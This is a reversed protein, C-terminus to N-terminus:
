QSSQLAAFRLPQDNPGSLTVREALHYAADDVLYRECESQSSEEAESETVLGLRTRPYTMYFLFSVGHTASM